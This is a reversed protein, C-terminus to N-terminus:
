VESRAEIAGQYIRVLDAVEADLQVVVREILSSGKPDLSLPDSNRETALTRGDENLRSHGGVFFHRIASPNL